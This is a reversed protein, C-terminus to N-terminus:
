RSAGPRCRHLWSGALAHLQSTQRFHGGARLCPQRRSPTGSRVLVSAAPLAPLPPPMGAAYAARLAAGEGARTAQLSEMSLISNKLEHTGDLRLPPCTCGQVCEVVFRGMHEYSRLFAVTVAATGDLGSGTGEGTQQVTAAAPLRRAPTPLNCAYPLARRAMVVLTVQLAQQRSAQFVGRGLLSCPVCVPLNESAAYM